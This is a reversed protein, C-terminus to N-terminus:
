CTSYVTFCSKTIETVINMLCSSNCGREILRSLSYGKKQETLKFHFELSKRALEYYLLFLKNPNCVGM